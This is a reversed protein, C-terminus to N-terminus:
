ERLSNVCDLSVRLVICMLNHSDEWSVRPAHVRKPFTQFNAETIPNSPNQHIKISKKQCYASYSRLSSNCQINRHPLEFVCLTFDLAKGKEWGTLIFGVFLEIWPRGPHTLTMRISQCTQPPPHFCQKAGCESYVLCSSIDM